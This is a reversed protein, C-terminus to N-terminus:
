SNLIMRPYVPLWAVHCQRLVTLHMFRARAETEPQMFIRSSILNIFLLLLQHSRSYFHPRSSLPPAPGSNILGNGVPNPTLSESAVGTRASVSCHFPHDASPHPSGPEDTNSRSALSLGCTNPRAEHPFLNACHM